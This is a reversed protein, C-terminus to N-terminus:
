DAAKCDLLLTQDKSHQRGGPVARGKIQQVESSNSQGNVGGARSEEAHSHFAPTM